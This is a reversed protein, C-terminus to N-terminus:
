NELVKQIVTKTDPEATAAASRISDTEAEVLGFSAATRQRIEDIHAAIDTMTEHFNSAWPGM